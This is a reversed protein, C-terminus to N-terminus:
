YIDDMIKGEKERKDEKRNYRNGILWNWRLITGVLQNEKIYKLLKRKGRDKRTIGWKNNYRDMKYQVTVHLAVNQLKVSLKSGFTADQNKCKVRSRTIQLEM